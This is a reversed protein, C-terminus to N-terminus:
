GKSRSSQHHTACLSSRSKLSHESGSTLYSHDNGIQVTGRPGAESRHFLGCCAIFERPSVVLPHNNLQQVLHDAGLRSALFPGAMVLGLKKGVVLENARPNAILKFQATGPTTPSSTQTPNLAVMRFPTIMPTREM